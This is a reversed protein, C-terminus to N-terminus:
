LFCYRLHNVLSSSFHFVVNLLNIGDFNSSRHHFIAFEFRFRGQYYLKTILIKFIWTLILLSFLPLWRCANYRERWDDERRMEEGRDGESHDDSHAIAAGGGAVETESTRNPYIVIFHISYWRNRYSSERMRRESIGLQSWEISGAPECDTVQRNARWEAEDM